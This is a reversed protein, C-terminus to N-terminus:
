QVGVPMALLMALLKGLKLNNNLGVDIVIIKLMTFFEFGVCLIDKTLFSASLLTVIV